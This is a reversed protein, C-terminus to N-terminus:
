TGVKNTSEIKEAYDDNLESANVTYPMHIKPQLYGWQYFEAVARAICDLFEFKMHGNTMIVIAQRKQISGVLYSSFGQNSGYHRFILDDSNENYIKFFALRIPNRSFVKMMM